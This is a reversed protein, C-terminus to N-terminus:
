YQISQRGQIILLQKNQFLDIKLKDKIVFNLFWFWFNM